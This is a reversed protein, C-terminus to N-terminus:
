WGASQALSEVYAPWWVGASPGGNCAGDSEGPTKIWLFYDILSNATQSTPETGFARGSPNCWQGNSGNGNRSTDIVFHKGGVAKSVAEGFASNAATTHFNSVNLSFGDSTAVGSLQLRKATEAASIWSSNGADIYVKTGANAKLTAVANRLLEYRANKDADSLCDMQPLADPELIVIAPRNAIGASFEKIWEQYKTLTSAGGASYSGCDRGPINYAVLVPSQQQAAAATVVTNVDAKVSANWDGYWTATPVSALRTMIRKTTSNTASAAAKSANSEPNVYLRATNTSQPQNISSLTPTSNIAPVVPSTALSPDLQTKVTPTITNNTAETKISSMDPKVSISVSNYSKEGTSKNVSVVFITYRDSPKHWNWGSVDITATKSDVPTRNNNMWNWTGNDVYWFMDYADQSSQSLQAVLTFKAPINSDEAPSVIQVPSVSANKTSLQNVSMMNIVQTSGAFLLIAGLGM